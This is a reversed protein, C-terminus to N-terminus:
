VTKSWGPAELARNRRTGPRPLDSAHNHQLTLASADSRINRFTTTVKLAQQKPCGAAGYNAHRLPAIAAFKCALHDSQADHVNTRMAHQCHRRVQALAVIRCFVRGKKNTSGKPKDALLQRITPLLATGAAM